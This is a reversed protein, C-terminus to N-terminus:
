LVLKWSSGGDLRSPYGMVRWIMSNGMDNDSMIGLGDRSVGCIVALMSTLAQVPIQHCSSVETSPNM